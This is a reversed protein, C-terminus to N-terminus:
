FAAEVGLSPIFITPGARLGCEAPAQGIATCDLADYEKSMTANQVEAVLSLSQEPGLVWRKELRADLRVFAPFRFDEAVRTNGQFHLYPVGSYVVLRASASYGGGFAYAAIASLAHTRDFPSLIEQAGAYRETARSLTYSIWTTLGRALSRRLSLELGYALGRVPADACITTVPGPNERPGDTRSACSNPLDSM